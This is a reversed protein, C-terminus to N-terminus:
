VHSLYFALVEDAPWSFRRRVLAAQSQVRARVDPELARSIGDAMAGSDSARVLEVGDLGEVLDRTGPLDSAVVPVGVSLYELIKTPLSHRYNPTDNLPSLAVGATRVVDLADPNPLRGDFTLRGLDGAEIVMEEQLHPTVPGVVRLSVGAERTVASRM